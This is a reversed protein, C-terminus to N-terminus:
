VGPPDPGPQLRHERLVCGGRRGARPGAAHPMWACVADIYADARGDFEPPLAHAGLYTTRYRFHWTQGLRRAVALCRM